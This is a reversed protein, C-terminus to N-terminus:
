VENRNSVSLTKKSYIKRKTQDSSNEQVLLLETEKDILMKDYRALNWDPIIEVCTIMEEILSLETIEKRKLMQALITAYIGDEQDYTYECAFTTADAVLSGLLVSGYKALIPEIISM